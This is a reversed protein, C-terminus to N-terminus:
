LHTVQKVIRLLTPLRQTRVLLIRSDYIHHSAVGHVVRKDLESALFHLVLPRIDGRM